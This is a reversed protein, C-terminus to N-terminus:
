ILGKTKPGHLYLGNWKKKLGMKCHIIIGRRHNTPSDGRSLTLQLAISIVYRYLVGARMMQRHKSTRNVM